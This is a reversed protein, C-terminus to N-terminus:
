CGAQAISGGAFVFYASTLPAHPRWTQRPVYVVFEAANLDIFYLCNNKDGCNLLRLYCGRRLLIQVKQDPRPDNAM